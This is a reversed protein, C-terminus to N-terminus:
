GRKVFSLILAAKNNATSETRLSMVYASQASLIHTDDGIFTDFSVHDHCQDSRTMFHMADTDNCGAYAIVLHQTHSESATFHEQGVILVEAIQNEKMSVWM